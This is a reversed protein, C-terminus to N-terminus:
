VRNRGPGKLHFMDEPPFSSREATRNTISTSCNGPKGTASLFWAIPCAPAVTRRHPGLPRARDRRICQGVDSVNFMSCERFSIASMDPNPRTNLIYTSPIPGPENEWRGKKLTRINWPVGCACQFDGHVCAWATSLQLATDTSIVVGAPNDLPIVQVYRMPDDRRVLAMMRSWLSM